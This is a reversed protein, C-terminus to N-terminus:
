VEVNVYEDSWIAKYVARKRIHKNICDECVFYEETQMKDRDQVEVILGREYMFDSWMIMKCGCMQCTITSIVTEM